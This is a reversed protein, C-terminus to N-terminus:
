GNQKAKLADLQRKMHEHMGMTRERTRFWNIAQTMSDIDDDNPVNPFNGATQIFGEVWPAISPDPLFINGAEHEPQMAFARATKGGEPEIAIMGPIQGQLTEIVASGNAKDEVLVAIARPYTAKVGKVAQVTAGFGMRETLRHLLFKDAGKRGWVHISVFDSTKTDKFACDVSLVMEDVEPVIKYFKWDKRKFISGGRSGPRQQLQAETHYAGLDKEMQVCAADDIRQPMLLEGEETRPDVFGLSTTKRHEREFRMPLILHCWEGKDETLIYGTLDRDNLRQHTIILASEGPQNQRTTATGKWWEISAHIAPESDAM